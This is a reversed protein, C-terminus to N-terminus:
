QRGPAAPIAATRRQRAVEFCLVAAAAGVNLSEARGPMPITAMGDLSGSLLVPLGTSENGVVIAVPQSLDYGEPASGGRAVAGLRFLGFSELSCLVPEASAGAIVPVLFVAGSSARVCKPSYPDATGECCVVVDAGAAAATRILTGVNGPDRVEVCVLALSATALVTSPQEPIRVVAMVPQPTVTDAVREIVGAALYAVRAGLEQVRELLELTGPREAAGPAAYVSEIDAGAEIATALVRGGEVM